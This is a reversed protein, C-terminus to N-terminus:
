VLKYLSVAYLGGLVMFEAEGQLQGPLLQDFCVIKSLPVCARVVQSGFRHAGEADLTFSCLNNYLKIPHHPRDHFFHRRSGRYLFLHRKHPYRRKLEYQCYSYLLDLQIELTHANHLGRIRQEMFREYSASGPAELPGNHYRTLLGFRSEVWGKWVAGEHSDPDFLWGRLLRLYHANPRQQPEDLLPSPPLDPAPLRFRVTMYDQFIRAREEHSAGKNLLLFLDHYLTKVSDIYLPAPHTQYTLGGIISAPLNCHNIPLQADDPLAIAM